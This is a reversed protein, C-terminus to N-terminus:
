FGQPVLGLNNICNNVFALGEHIKMIEEYDWCKLKDKLDKVGSAYKKIRDLQERDSVAVVGQVAPNNLSKLLNVILSDISGKTQVEFVYIVRGMNGITAEWVTDVKSGEAVRQEINATFGLWLGIDRLKDRIDDHIFEAEEPSKPKVKGATPPKRTYIRSLTDEVQLKDWIFYDVSLLTADKFGTKRLEESIEKCVQCLYKYVTGTLQYDYRPLNNVELYNLAVYARRNWLMFDNPHTKCLIESVMAPGMGKIKSRFSNWRETIDEQGWVLQVLNERFNELGNDEIIKDVVYHKNGWIQMAWLKSLYEYIDDETMSLITERTFRKYYDTLNVREKFDEKFRAPEKKSDSIFEKIKKRLLDKNM